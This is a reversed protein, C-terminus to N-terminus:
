LADKEDEIYEGIIAIGNSNISVTKQYLRLKKRYDKASGIPAVWGITPINFRATDGPVIAAPTAYFRVKLKDRTKNNLSLFAKADIVAEAKALYKIFKNFESNSAITYTGTHNIYSSYHTPGLAEVQATTVSTFTTYPYSIPYKSIELDFSASNNDTENKLIQSAFDKALKIGRSGKKFSGTVIMSINNNNCDRGCRYIVHSIANAKDNSWELLDFDKGEYIDTTATMLKPMIKLYYLNTTAPLVLVYYDVIDGTNTTTCLDYIADAASCQDKFYDKQIFPVGQTTHTLAESDPHLQIQISGKNRGNIDNLISKIKDIFTPQDSAYRRWSNNTKLLIETTNALKLVVQTGRNDHKKQRTLVQGVFMIKNAFDVPETYVNNLTKWGYIVFIDDQEFDPPEIRIRGAVPTGYWKFDGAPAKTGLTITNAINSEIVFRNNNKDILTHWKYKDTPLTKSITFTRTSSNYTALDTVLTKLNFPLSSGDQKKETTEQCDFDLYNSVDVPVSVWEFKNEKDKLPLYLIKFQSHEM